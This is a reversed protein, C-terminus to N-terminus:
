SNYCLVGDQINCCSKIRKQSKWNWFSACSVNQDAFKESKESKRAFKKVINKETGKEKRMTTNSYAQFLHVNVTTDDKSYM